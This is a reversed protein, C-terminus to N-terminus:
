RLVGHVTPIWLLRGGAPEPQRGPRERSPAAHIEPAASRGQGFVGPHEVADFAVRGEVAHRIRGGDGVPAVRHRAGLEPEAELQRPRNRVFTSGVRRQQGAKQARDFRQVFVESRQQHLKRRPDSGPLQRADVIDDPAQRGVAAVRQFDTMSTEELARLREFWQKPPVPQSALKPMPSWPTVAM